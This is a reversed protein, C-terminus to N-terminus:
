GVSVSVNTPTVPEGGSLYGAESELRAGIAAALDDRDAAQEAPVELVITVRVTDPM